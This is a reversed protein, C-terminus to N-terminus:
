SDTTESMPDIARSVLTQTATLICKEQAATPLHRTSSQTLCVIRTCVRKVLRSLKPRTFPAFAHSADKNLILFVCVRPLRPPRGTNLSSVRKNQGSIVTDMNYLYGGLSEGARFM